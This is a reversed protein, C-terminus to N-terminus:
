LDLMKTSESPKQPGDGGSKLSKILNVIEANQPSYSNGKCCWFSTMVRKTRNRLTKYLVFFLILVIVPTMVGVFTFTAVQLRSKWTDKTYDDVSFIMKDLSKFGTIDSGSNDNFKLNWKQHALVEIDDRNFQEVAFSDGNCEFSGTVNQQPLICSRHCNLNSHDTSFWSKSNPTILTIPEHSAILYNPKELYEFYKLNCSQEQSITVTECHELNSELFVRQLCQSSKLSSRGVNCFFRNDRKSCDRKHFAKYQRGDTSAIFDPLNKISLFHFLNVSSRKPRSKEALSNLNLLLDNLIVDNSTDPKVTSTEAQSYIQFFPKSSEFIKSSKLINSLKSM